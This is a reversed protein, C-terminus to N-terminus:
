EVQKASGGIALTGTVVGTTSADAMGQFGPQKGGVSIRFTGPQVMRHGDAAVTALQKPGVTFEVTKTEKPALFVRSFGVLTRLPVPWQAGPSSLYLEVVEDGGRAGTNEVDVSVKVEGGATVQAPVTLNKYAFTSYSLGYGFPFLPEGDFYRYTRGKMKYDTFPPLQDASKYFTVPLRGSPNYDGFLVDALATGGAQGPYWAEVMAPVHDRAWNVSLASGNM